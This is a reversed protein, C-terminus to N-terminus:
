WDEGVLYDEDTLTDLPVIQVSVEDNEECEEDYLEQEIVKEYKAVESPDIDVVRVWETMRPTNNDPEKYVRSIILYKM